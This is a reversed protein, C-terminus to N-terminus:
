TRWKRPLVKGGQAFCSRAQLFIAIMRLGEKRYKGHNGPLFHRFGNPMPNALCMDSFIDKKDLSLPQRERFPGGGFTPRWWQFSGVRLNQLDWVMACEFEARSPGASATSVNSSRANGDDVDYM